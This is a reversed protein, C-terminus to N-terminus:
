LIQFQKNIVFPWFTLKYRAIMAAVFFCGMVALIPSGPTPCNQCFLWSLADLVPHDSCRLLTSVSPIPCSLCSLLLLSDPCSPWSLFSLVPYGYNLMLLVAPLPCCPCSLWSLVTMVPYGPCSLWVNCGPCSVPFPCAPVRCCSFVTPVPCLPCILWFM